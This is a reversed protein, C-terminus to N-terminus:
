LFDTDGGLWWWRATAVKDATLASARAVALSAGSETMMAGTGLAAAAAPSAWATLEAMGARAAEDTAAQIVMGFTKRSGIVDLLEAGSEAFRMVAVAAAGGMPWRRLLFLRYQRDPRDLFRWRLYDMDRVGLVCDGMDRAMAPWVKAVQQLAASNEVLPSWRWWPPLRKSRAAWRLLHIKGANHYLGLTVGLQVHRQNPFGFALQYAKGEGVRSGFFRSCVQFLPGKRTMVGRVQPAVMVDGIQVAKMLEGHWLLTRPFGAYHAVLHGSENWLGVAEGRGRSYKWDYWRADHTQGFAGAFLRLVEPENKVDLSGIRFHHNGIRCDNSEMELRAPYSLTSSLLPESVRGGNM